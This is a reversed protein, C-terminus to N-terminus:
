AQQEPFKFGIYTGNSIGMLALLTGSFEPMGLTDYVSICFILGLVVTWVVIQFRHLSIGNKDTLIDRWFTESKMAATSASLQTISADVTSLRAKKEALERKDDDGAQAEKANIQTVRDNLSAKEQQLAQLQSQADAGKSADIAVAGLATASSIGFLALASSSLTDHDGTMIWILLYAALVIFFWFAMQSRGLSFTRRAGGPPEPGPDRLIESRVALYFFLGVAFFFLSLFVWFVWDTRILTLEVSGGSALMWGDEFGVAVTVNRSFGHPAGFIAAWADKSQDTRKLDFQLGDHAHCNRPYIGKLQHDALYLVAKCIDHTSDSRKALDAIEVTITGGLAATGTVQNISLADACALAPFAVMAALLCVGAMAGNNQFAM